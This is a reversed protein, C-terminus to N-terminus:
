RGALQAVVPALDDKVRGQFVFYSLGVEERLRLLKEVAEGPSGVLYMPSDRIEEPTASARTAVEELRVAAGEGVVASGISVNLELGGFREGAAQHVFEVRERVAASSAGTMRMANGTWTSGTFGVIDAQEAALRLITDGHGGILLPPHPRQVPAEVAPRSSSAFTVVPDGAWARKMIGISEALRGARVQPRDYALGLLDYEPKSWGSGLGLELRGDTLVDVTAADQALRLPWHFDNNVVLTGVRLTATVTAAAVLPAFMSPFGLHDPALVTSWGQDEASRAFDRLEKASGLGSLSLGFRFAKSSAM